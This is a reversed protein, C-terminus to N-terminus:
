TFQQGLGSFDALFSDEDAYLATFNFTQTAVAKKSLSFDAKTIRADRIKAATVNNGANKQIVEIAFGTAYQLRKPNLNEYARGDALNSFSVNNVGWNGIGNGSNVVGHPRTGGIENVADAVYRVVSFQGTVLYGTPEVSSPEYMGLLTPTAHKVQISYTLNTCYALTRGNVKIKANAGTFFLPKM